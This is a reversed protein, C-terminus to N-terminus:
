IAMSELSSSIIDENVIKDGRKQIVSNYRGDQKFSMEDSDENLRSRPMTPRGVNNKTDSM